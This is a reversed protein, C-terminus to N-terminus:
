TSVSVYIWTNRKITKRLLKDLLGKLTFNKWLVRKIPNRPQRRLGVYHVMKSAADGTLSSGSSSGPSSSRSPVNFSDRPGSSRDDETDYPVIGRGGGADKWRGATTDVLQGNHAWRLKGSNDVTVLYNL